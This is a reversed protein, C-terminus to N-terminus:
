FQAISIIVIIFILVFWIMAISLRKFAYGIKDNKNNNDKIGIDYFIYGLFLSVVCIIIKLIISFM